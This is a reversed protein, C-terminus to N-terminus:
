SGGGKSSAAKKAPAKEEDAEGLFGEDVLRKLDDPDIGAPVPDGAYIQIYGGAETKAMTLAAVGVYKKANSM